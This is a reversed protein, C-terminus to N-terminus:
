VRFSDHSMSVWGTAAATGALKQACGGRVAPKRGVNWMELEMSVYVEYTPPQANHRLRRFTARVLPLYPAVALRLRAIMSQM